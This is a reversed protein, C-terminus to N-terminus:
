AEKVRWVGEDIRTVSMRIEEGSEIREIFGDFDLKAKDLTLGYSHDGNAGSGVKQLKRIAVPRM